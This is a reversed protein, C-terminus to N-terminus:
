KSGNKGKIRNIFIDKFHNLEQRAKFTEEPSYGAISVSKDWPIGKVTYSNYLVLVRSAKHFEDATPVKITTGGYYTIFNMFSERDLIYSLESLSSYINDGSIRSMLLFLLSYSDEDSLEEPKIM